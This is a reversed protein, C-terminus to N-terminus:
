ASSNQRTYPRRAVFIRDSLPMTLIQSQGSLPQLESMLFDRFSM